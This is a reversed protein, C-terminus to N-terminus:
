SLLNWEGFRFKRGDVFSERCVFLQEATQHVHRRRVTLRWPAEGCLSKMLNFSRGHHRWALLIRFSRRPESLIERTRNNGSADDNAVFHASLDVKQSKPEQRRSLVRSSLLKRCM